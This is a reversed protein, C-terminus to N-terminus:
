AVKVHRTMAFSSTVSTIEITSDPTHFNVQAVYHRDQAKRTHGEGAAQAYHSFIFIGVIMKLVSRRGPKTSTSITRCCAQELLRLRDEPHSETDQLFDRNM